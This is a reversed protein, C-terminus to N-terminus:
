MRYERGYKENKRKLWEGFFVDEIVYRDEKKEVLQKDELTKLAKQVFPPSNLNYKRIFEISYLNREGLAIGLILSKQKGRLSDWILEYAYSQNRLVNKIAEELDEKTIAGKTSINWLEHCLQQTYYPHGDTIEFIKNLMVKDIKILKELFRKKIFEAYETKPLKDLYFQKGFRFLPRERDRFITDFLHKKSGMFVYSVLNHHQLRSKMTKEINGNFKKIEQFEDLVVVMRKKKLKAIKQPLDLIEALAKNDVKEYLMLDITISPETGLTIKPSIRSLTDKILNIIDDLKGKPIVSSAFKETFELKSTMEFLNLYATLIGEKELQELVKLILSTKGYRRPSYIIMNQGSKIDEILEKCERGRDAFYKGTVIDGYIFPNEM